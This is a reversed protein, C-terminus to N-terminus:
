KSVTVTLFLTLLHKTLKIKCKFLSLWSTFTKNSRFTRCGNLLPITVECVQPLKAANVASTLTVLNQLWGSAACVAAGTIKWADKNIRGTNSRGVEKEWTHWKCSLDRTCSHHLPLFPSVRWRWETVYVSFVFPHFHQQWCGTPGNYNLLRCPM